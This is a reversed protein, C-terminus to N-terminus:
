ATDLIGRVKHILVAPTFPKQLFTVGPGLLGRHGIIADTYGSMYLVKMEPHFNILYEALDHGNMGGPMIIDTIL